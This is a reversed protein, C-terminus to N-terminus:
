ILGLGGAAFPVLRRLFVLIFHMIVVDACIILDAMLTMNSMDVYFGQILLVISLAVMCNNIIRIVTMGETEAIM